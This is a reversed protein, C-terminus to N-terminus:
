KNDTKGDNDHDTDKSSAAIMAVELKNQRDLQNGTAEHQQEMQTKKTNEIDQKPVLVSKKNYEFINNFSRMKSPDKSVHRGRILGLSQGQEEEYELM